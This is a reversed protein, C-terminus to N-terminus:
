GPDWLQQWRLASTILPVPVDHQWISFTGCAAVDGSRTTTACGTNAEVGTGSSSAQM